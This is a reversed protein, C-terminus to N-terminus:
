YRERFRFACWGWGILFISWSIVAIWIGLRYPTNDFFLRVKGDGPPLLIGKFIGNTKLIPIKVGNVSAVWNPHWSDAIVLFEQEESSYMFEVDGYELKGLKLMRRRDPLKPSFMVKDIGEWLYAVGQEADYLDEYAKITKIRDAFYYYPWARQNHYIYFQYSRYVLELHEAEPL